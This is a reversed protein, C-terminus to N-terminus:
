LIRASLVNWAKRYHNLAEFARAPAVEVVSRDGTFRNVLEIKQLAPVRNM